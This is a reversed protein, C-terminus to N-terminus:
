GGRHDRVIEPYRDDQFKQHAAALGGPTPVFYFGNRFAAMRAEPTGHSFLGSIQYNGLLEMSNQFWARDIRDINRRFLIGAIFDAGLEVRDPSQELEVRLATLGGAASLQAIHGFEHALPGAYNSYAFRAALPYTIVYIPNGKSSPIPAVSFKGTECGSFRVRDLPVGVERALLLTTPHASIRYPDLTCNRNPTNGSGAYLCDFQQSGAMAAAGAPLLWMGLLLAGRRRLVRASKQRNGANRM